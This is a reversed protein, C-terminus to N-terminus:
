NGAVLQLTLSRTLTEGQQKLTFTFNASQATSPATLGIDFPRVAWGADPGSSQIDAAQIDFPAVDTTDLQWSSTSTVPDFSTSWDFHGTQHFKALLSLGTQEGTTLTITTGSSLTGSTVGELTLRIN